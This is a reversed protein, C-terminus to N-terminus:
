LKGQSQTEVKTVRVISGEGPSSDPPHDTHSPLMEPRWRLVARPDGPGVDPRQGNMSVWRVTDM